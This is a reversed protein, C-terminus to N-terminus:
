KTLFGRLVLMGFSIFGLLILPNPHLSPTKWEFRSQRMKM